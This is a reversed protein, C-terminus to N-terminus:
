WKSAHFHLAMEFHRSNQRKLLPAFIKRRLAFLREIAAFQSLGSFGVYYLFFYRYFAYIKKPWFIIPLIEVSEKKWLIPLLNVSISLIPSLTDAISSVEINVVGANDLLREKIFTLIFVNDKRLAFVIKQM